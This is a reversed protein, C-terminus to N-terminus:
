KTGTRVVIDFRQVNCFETNSKNSEKGLCRTMTTDMADVSGIGLTYSISYLRESTEPNYVSNPSTITFGILGLDYDGSSVVSQVTSDDSQRIDNFRLAGTSTKECYVKEKDLVRVLQIKQSSKAAWGYKVIGTNTAQKQLGYATNWLYTYNGLCVRGSIVRIGGGASVATRTVYDSTLDFAAVQVVNRRLDDSVTRSVQNIEKVGMGRGYTNGIQIITMAIALLLISLFTMALVLEILTFGRQKRNGHNM